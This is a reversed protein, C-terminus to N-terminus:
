LKISAISDHINTKSCVTQIVKYVHQFIKVFFGRFMGVATLKRTGYRGSRCMVWVYRAFRKLEDAVPFFIIPLTM